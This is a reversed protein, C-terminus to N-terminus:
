SEGLDRRELDFSPPGAVIPHRDSGPEAVDTQDVVGVEEVVGVQEVGPESGVDEAADQIRETIGTLVLLLVMGNFLAHAVIAPGLRHLLATAVGFAIGVGSLVIVLGINGVGRVPDVHAAGFLVGQAVVVVVMPLRSRLGRMVVGRFVMEEVIPAAIVATIVISVVYTRDAAADTIADTNSTVPLDFVLVISAAALQAGLAGLWVVPGWGLDSWRPTLGIDPGLRGTAWRRSAYRCWWVSPGYGVTALLLVYVAVPWGLDVLADLLYKSAMLSATLVMIAGIAAAVPLAPGVAPRAPGVARVATGPVPPPLASRVTRTSIHTLLDALFGAVWELVYRDSGIFAPIRTASRSMAGVCM